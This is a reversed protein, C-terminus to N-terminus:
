TSHPLGSLIEPSLYDPTGVLRKGEEHAGTVMLKRVKPNLLHPLATSKDQREFSGGIRSLGFDTLKLHGDKSILLNDPKLDLSHDSLICLKLGRHVIGISHLYELALVTEAIYVFLLSEM